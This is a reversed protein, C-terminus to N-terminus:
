EMLRKIPRAIPSGAVWRVMSITGYSITPPGFWSARTLTGTTLLVYEGCSIEAMTRWFSLRSASAKRPTGTVLATM